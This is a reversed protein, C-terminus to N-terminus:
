KNIVNLYELLIKDWTFNESWQAANLSYKDYDDIIEDIAQIIHSSDKPNILRGSYGDSIASEIGCNISGIAPLGLQNAELIAIGFGEVDGSKTESSLMVFVDSQNLLEYKRNDSVRGYFTIHNSVDLQDSIKKMQQTETPLGVIHYHIHPYKNIIEPLAQILNQQGKRFSVNGITIIQPYSHIEKTKPKYQTSIIKEFGNPIVTVKDILDRNILSKTFDSVAIIHEFRKLSLDILKKKLDKFNLETGHVIAITKKNRFPQFLGVMWLSFKGSAFIVDNQKLLKLYIFLRELYTIVILKRRKIRYIEFIQNNIFRNEDDYNKSRYDSLVTVTYQNLAMERALNYAHNGIGGPQPPFESTVILIKKSNKM